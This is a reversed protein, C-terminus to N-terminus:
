KLAEACAACLNINAIIDPTICAFMAHDAPVREDADHALSECRAAPNAPALRVPGLTLATSSM